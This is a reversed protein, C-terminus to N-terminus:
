IRDYQLKYIIHFIEAMVYIASDIFSKQILIFFRLAYRNLFWFTCIARFNPGDSSANCDKLLYHWWKIMEVIFSVDIIIHVHVVLVEIPLVSCIGLM